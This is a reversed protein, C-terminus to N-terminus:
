KNNTRLIEWLIIILIIVLILITLFPIQLDLSGYLPLNYHNFIPYLVIESFITIGGLGFIITLLFSFNKYFKNQEQTSYESRLKFKKEISKRINNWGLKQNSYNIIEDIEGFNSIKETDTVLTEL